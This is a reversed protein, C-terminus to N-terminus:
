INSILGACFNTVLLEGQCNQKMYQEAKKATEIINILEKRSIQYEASIGLTIRRLQIASSASLAALFKGFGTMDWNYKNLTKIIEYSKSLSVANLVANVDNLTENDNECLASLTKGINNDNAILATTIKDSDKIGSIEEVCVKASEFDPTFLSFVTCRSVITDLLASKSSVLLIFVVYEPPEELVKLFANQAERNMKQADCILYVKKDRIDPREYVSKKLERIMSVTILNKQAKVEIFDSNTGVNFLHCSRCNDCYENGNECLISKALAKAVTHKGTGDEGEIMIAHPIRKENLASKLANVTKENGAFNELM